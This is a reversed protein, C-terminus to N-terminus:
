SQASVGAIPLRDDRAIVYGHKLIAHRRIGLLMSYPEDRKKAGDCRWQYLMPPALCYGPCKRKTSLAGASCLTTGIQIFEIGSSEYNISRTM